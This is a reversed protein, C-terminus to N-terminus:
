QTGFPPNGMRALALFLGALHLAGPIGGSAAQRIVEPLPMLVADLDETADLHRTGSYQVGRALFYHIRNNHSAANPCAEGCLEWQGGSYGTEEKLERRAAAEMDTEGEDTTGGPLELHVEGVAHRYQRVMVVMGDVTIPIINVWPRYELVIYPDIVAGNPLRCRDTRVCAWGDKLLYASTLTKWPDM